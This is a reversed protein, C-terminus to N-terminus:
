HAFFLVRNIADGCNTKWNTPVLPKQERLNRESGDALANPIALLAVEYGADRV